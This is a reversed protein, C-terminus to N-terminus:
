HDAVDLSLVFHEDSSELADLIDQTGLVLRAATPMTQWEYSFRNNEAPVDMDVHSSYVRAILHTVLHGGTSIRIDVTGKLAFDLSQGFQESAERQLHAEPSEGFHQKGSPLMYKGINPQLKRLAMLWEGRSNQLAMIAVIKPQKRQATNTTSMADVYQLGKATLTYELDMKVIFGDRLLGRLHYTFANSDMDAPKLDSFRLGEAKSLKDIVSRQVHHEIVSSM